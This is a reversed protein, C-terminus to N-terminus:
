AEERRINLHDMIRNLKADVIQLDHHLNKLIDDNSAQQALEEMNELQIWFSLITLLDLLGTEGM